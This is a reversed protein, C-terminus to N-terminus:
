YRKSKFYINKAVLWFSQVSNKGIKMKQCVLGLTDSSSIRNTVQGQSPTVHRKILICVYHLDHFDQHNRQPNFIIRTGFKHISDIMCSCHSINEQLTKAKAPRFNGAPSLRPNGSQFYFLHFFFTQLCQKCKLISHM